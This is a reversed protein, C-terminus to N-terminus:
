RRLKLGIVIRETNSMDGVFRQLPLPLEKILTPLAIIQADKTEAPHQYVDVVELEYRGPLYQDCVRRVNAIAATSRSTAGSVYLRFVYSSHALEAVVKEFEKLAQDASLDLTREDDEPSGSDRLYSSM